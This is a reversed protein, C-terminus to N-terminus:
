SPQLSNVSANIEERADSDSSTGADDDIGPADDVACLTSYWDQKNDDLVMRYHVILRDSGTVYCSQDPHSCGPEKCRLQFKHSEFDYEKPFDCIFCMGHLSIGSLGFSDSQMEAFEMPLWKMMYDMVVLCEHPRLGESISRKVSGHHADHLM